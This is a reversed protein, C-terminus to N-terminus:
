ECSLTSFDTNTTDCYDARFDGKVKDSQNGFTIDFTGTLVGNRENRLETVDIIGSRGYGETGIDVVSSCNADHKFFFVEAYSGAATPNAALVTYPDKDPALLGGQANISFLTAVFFTANRPKRGAKLTACLDPSDSMLLGITETNGQANRFPVFISDKVSLPKDDVEGNFSGAGGCGVLAAAGLALAVGHKFTM